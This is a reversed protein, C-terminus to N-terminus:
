RHREMRTRDGTGPYDRGADDVAHDYLRAAEAPSLGLTSALAQAVSLSPARLGRELLSVYGNAVGSRRAVERLSWGRTHRAHRLIAAVDAPLVHRERRTPRPPVHGQEGHPGARSAPQWSTPTAIRKGRTHADPGPVTDGTVTASEM